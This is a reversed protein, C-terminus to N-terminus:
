KTKNTDQKNKSSDKELNNQQEEEQAIKAAKQEEEIMIQQVAFQEKKYDLEKQILYNIKLLNNYINNITRSIVLFFVFIVFLVFFSFVYLLTM